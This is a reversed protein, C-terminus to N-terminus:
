LSMSYSFSGISGCGEGYLKNQTVLFPGVLQISLIQLIVKMTSGKM